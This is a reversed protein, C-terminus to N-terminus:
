IGQSEWGLSHHICAHDLGRCFQLTTRRSNRLISAHHDLSYHRQPTKDEMNSKIHM